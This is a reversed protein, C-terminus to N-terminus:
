LKRIVEASYFWRDIGIPISGAPGKRALPLNSERLVIHLRVVLNDLLKGKGTGAPLGSTFRGEHAPGLGDAPARPETPSTPPWLGPRAQGPGGDQRVSTQAQWHAGSVSSCARL